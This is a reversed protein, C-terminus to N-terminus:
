KLNITGVNTNAKIKKKGKGRANYSKKFSDGEVSVDGVDTSLSISYEDLDDVPDISIEGVNTDCDIDNFAVDRVSIEGVNVDIDIEDAEFMRLTVDGVNTDIDVNDLRSGSPITIVVKCNQYGINFGRKKNGSQKVALKGNSVSFEPKLASKNFTGEIAFEKGQKITLGMVAADVKISSFRELRENIARKSDGNSNKEDKYDEDDSSFSIDGNEIATKLNGLHKYTGFCICFLTVVGLVILLYSKKM